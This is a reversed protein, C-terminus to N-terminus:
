EAVSAQFGVPTSVEARSQLEARNSRMTLLPIQAMVTGLEPVHASLGHLGHGDGSLLSMATVAVVSSLGLVLSMAFNKKILM